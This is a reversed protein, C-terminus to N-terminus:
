NPAANDDASDDSRGDDDGAVVGNDVTTSLRKIPKARSRKAIVFRNWRAHYYQMWTGHGSLFIRAINEEVSNWVLGQKSANRLEGTQVDWVNDSLCLNCVHKGAFCRLPM